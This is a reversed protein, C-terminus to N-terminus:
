MKGFCFLLHSFGNARKTENGTLLMEFNAEDVAKIILM